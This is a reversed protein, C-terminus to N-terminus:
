ITLLITVYSVGARVKKFRWNKITKNLCNFIAGELKERAKVYSVRGNKNIKLTLKAQIQAGQQCQVLSSFHKNLSRKISRKSRKGRGKISLIRVTGPNKKMKTPSNQGLAQLETHQDQGKDDPIQAAQNQGQVKAHDGQPHDSKKDAKQAPSDQSQDALDVIRYDQAKEDKGCAALTLTGLALMTLLTLVKSTCVSSPREDKFLGFNVFYRKRDNVLKDLAKM